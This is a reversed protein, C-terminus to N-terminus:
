RPLAYSAVISQALSQEDPPLAAIVDLFGSRGPLPAIALGTVPYRYGPATGSFAIAFDTLWHEKLDPTGTADPLRVQPAPLAGATLSVANCGSCTSTEVEVFAAPDGPDQFRWLSFGGGLQDESVAWGQPAFLALGDADHVAVGARPKAAPALATPVPLGYALDLALDVEVSAPYTTLTRSVPDFVYASQPGLIGLRGGAAVVGADAAVHAPAAVVRGTKLDIMGAELTAASGAADLAFGLYRGTAGVFHLEASQGDVSSPISSLLRGSAALQGQGQWPSIEVDFPGAVEYGGATARAGAYSSWVLGYPTLAAAIGPTESLIDAPLDATYGQVAVPTLGAAQHPTPDKKGSKEAASKAHTKNATKAPHAGCGALLGVTLLAATFAAIPRVPM